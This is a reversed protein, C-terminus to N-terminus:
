TSMRWAFSRGEEFALASGLEVGVAEGTIGEDGGAPKPEYWEVCLLLDALRSDACVLQWAV